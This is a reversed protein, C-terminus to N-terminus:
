RTLTDRVIELQAPKDVDMGVEPYPCLVAKGKVGLRKCVAAEADKLSLQRLLLFLMADYGLISAQRLSSKRADILRKWLPTEEMVAQLRFCHLQGGCVQMDKLHTYQFAAGPFGSEMVPREIITYYLDQEFEGCHCALWDVIEARLTPIDGAALIAHTELPARRLVETAGARINGLMSGTDPLVTLPVACVLDIEQPLGVVIVQEVATSAGLADLEWQIMPKGAVEIMSKLGGRTIEYLPQNPEIDGGATIIAFM